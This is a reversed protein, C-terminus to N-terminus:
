HTAGRSTTSNSRGAASSCAPTASASPTAGPSCPPACLSTPWPHAAPVSACRASSATSCARPHYHRRERLELNLRKATAAEVVGPPDTLGAQAQFWAVVTETASEYTQFRRRDAVVKLFQGLQEATPQLTPGGPPPPPEYPIPPDSSRFWGSDGLAILAEQLNAVDPGQAGPSLTPQIERLM